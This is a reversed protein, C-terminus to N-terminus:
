RDQIESIESLSMELYMKHWTNKITEQKVKQIRKTTYSDLWRIIIGPILKEPLKLIFSFLINEIKDYLVSFIEKIRNPRKIEIDM